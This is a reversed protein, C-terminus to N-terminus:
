RQYLARRTSWLSSVRGWLSGGDGDRIDLLEVEFHLVASPPVTEGAGADGYGLEPPVILERKGRVRMGHLGEEWGPLVEGSGLTFQVPNGRDWGKLDESAVGEFELQNGALSEDLSVSVSWM